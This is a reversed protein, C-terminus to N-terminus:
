LLSRRRQLLRRPKNRHRPNGQKSHCAIPANM